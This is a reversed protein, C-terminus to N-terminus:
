PKTKSTESESPSQVPGEMVRPANGRTKAKGLVEVECDDWHVVGPRPADHCFWAWVISADPPVDMEITTRTWPTNRSFQQPQAEHVVGRPTHAYLMAYAISKLSDTKVWGSLKIRKGALARNAIVQCVGTRARVMLAGGSSAVISARGSHAETTDRAVRMGDFPPMSFEWAAADAEFGPDLLLNEGARPERVPRAPLAALSADDILIQGTGQLGARVFVVNTLPPCYVRLERKVWGTEPEQFTERDWGLSVLPDDMRKMGLRAMAEDREVGWRAAQHSITDRYAQLLVYARGDLSNTRTWITLVLDKGWENRGVIMRQSWNHAMPYLASVNAVSISYKGGHVLLTDRGFFVTPVGARSTDWGAPMWDHGPLPQEFGGNVLRNAAPAAHAASLPASATGLVLALLILLRSM